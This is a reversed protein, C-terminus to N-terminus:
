QELRDQQKRGGPRQCATGEAQVGEEEGALKM